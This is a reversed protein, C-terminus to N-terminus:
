SGRVVAWQAVHYQCVCRQAFAVCWSHLGLLSQHGIIPAPTHTHIDRDDWSPRSTRQALDLPLTIMFFRTPQPQQLSSLHFCCACYACLLINHNDFFSTSTTFVHPPNPILFLFFIGFLLLCSSTHAPSRSLAHRSTRALSSINVFEM